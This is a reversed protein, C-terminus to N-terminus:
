CSVDGVTTLLAGWDPGPGQRRGPRPSAAGTEACDERLDDRIGIRTPDQVPAAM